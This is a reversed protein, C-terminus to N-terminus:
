RAQNEVKERVTRLYERCSDIIKASQGALAAIDDIGTEPDEVKAVIEGLKKMSANYDFGKEM